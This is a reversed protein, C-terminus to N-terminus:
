NSAICRLVLGDHRYNGSAGPTLSYSTLSLGFSRDRYYATSSWYVGSAGRDNLSGGTVSGSYLYNNPYSRFAEIATRGEANIEDSNYSLNNSPAVGMISLGLQWFESNAANASSGGIPLHWGAPCLDGVTSVNNGDLAYVGRGATASYWNYYNGYSYLNNSNNNPNNTARNATNDTRLRSQDSCAETVTNGFCWGDPAVDPDYSVNSTASLTNFTTTDAYNHKLTVNTGDNLPNNTNTLTLTATNDLRLNEIMWCKGDALKSIAYTQNDRQDTLATVAGSALSSCGTWNQINGASEIWHAYLSLGPNTGSYDAANISINEQPGYFGNSDSYDYTTSWGAFGYGVRSFNSALLTISDIYNDSEPLYDIINSYNADLCYTAYDTGIVCQSWDKAKLSQMGMTGEYDNANPSYCIKGAECIIPGDHPSNNDPHVLTYKVQGVYTGAPQTPAVYAAYTAEVSSGTAEVSGNTVDTGSTRYAVRTYTSPVSRYSNFSNDISPVYTGTVPSVKMSWASTGGSTYTNTNIIPADTDSANTMLKTNGFENNTYGVAYISFGSADYCIVKLTTKGIGNSYESMGGSYLGNAIDAVHPTNVTAMMTCAEAVHVTASASETCTVDGTTSDTTCTAFVSGNNFLISAIGLVMAFTVVNGTALWKIISKNKM